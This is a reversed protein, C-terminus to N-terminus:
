VENLLQKVGKTVGRRAIAQGLIFGLKITAQLLSHKEFLKTISSYNKLFHLWQPPQHPQNSPTRHCSLFSCIKNPSWCLSNWPHVM